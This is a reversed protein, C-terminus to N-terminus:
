RLSLGTLKQKDPNKKNNNDFLVQQSMLSSALVWIEERFVTTRVLVTMRSFSFLALTRVKM